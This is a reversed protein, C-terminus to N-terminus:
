TIESFAAASRRRLDASVRALVASWDGSREQLYLRHLTIARQLKESLLLPVTSMRGGSEDRAATM